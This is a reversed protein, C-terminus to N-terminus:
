RWYSPGVLVGKDHADCECSVFESVESVQNYGMSAFISETFKQITSKYFLTGCTPCEEHKSWDVAEAFVALQYRHGELGSGEPYSLDFALPMFGLKSWIHQRTTANMGGEADRTQLVDVFLGELDVQRIEQVKRTMDRLARRMLHQALRKGRLAESVVIYSVMACGSEVHLERAAGGLVEAHGDECQKVVLSFSQIVNTSNKLRNRWVDLSELEGGPFELGCLAHFMEVLEFQDEINDGTITAWFLGDAKAKDTSFPEATAFFEEADFIQDEFLEVLPEDSKRKKKKALTIGNALVDQTITAPHLGSTPTSAVVSLNAARFFSSASHM